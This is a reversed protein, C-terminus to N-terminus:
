LDPLPVGTKKSVERAWKLLRAFQADRAANEVEHEDLRKLFGDLTSTLSDLKRDFEDMRAELKNFRDDVQVMFSQVIGVIEGTQQKLREDLVEALEDKTVYNSM